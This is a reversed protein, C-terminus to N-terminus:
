HFNNIGIPREWGYGNCDNNTNRRSNEEAADIKLVYDNREANEKINEPCMTTITPQTFM